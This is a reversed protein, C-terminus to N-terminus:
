VLGDIDHSLRQGEAFARAVASVLLAVFLWALMPGIDLTFLESTKIPIDQQRLAALMIERNAYANVVTISVAALAIVPGVTTLLRPVRGSFSDGAQVNLVVLLLVWAIYAVATALLIGPVTALLALRTSPDFITVGVTGDFTFSAGPAPTLLRGPLETGYGVDGDWNLQDSRLAAWLQLPITLAGGVTLVTLGGRLIVWDLRDLRKRAM